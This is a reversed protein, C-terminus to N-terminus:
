IQMGWSPRNLDVHSNVPPVGCMVPDADFFTEQLRKIENQIKSVFGTRYQSKAPKDMVMQQQAYIDAFNEDSMRNDKNVRNSNVTEMVCKEAMMLGLLNDFAQAQSIVSNTYDWSSSIELNIGYTRYNSSYIDRTFTHAAYNSNAEFPQWGVMAYETWDVLYVNNAQVNQAAIEDQFYGIWYVGGKNVENQYRLVIETYDDTNIRYWQQDNAKVVTFEQSWIPDAKMDNFIYLTVTCPGTFNLGISDIKVSCQSRGVKLQYGVFKSANPINILGTRFQKEWLIRPFEIMADSVFVQSLAYMAVESKLSDLYANFDSDNINPNEQFKWIANATCSPHEMNYYRGSVCKKSATSLVPTFDSSTPQQWGRRAKLVPLVISTDIGNSFAM